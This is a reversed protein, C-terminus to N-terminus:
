FDLPASINVGLFAEYNNGILDVGLNPSINLMQYPFEYMAGFRLVFRRQSGTRENLEIYSLNETNSLEGYDTWFFSPSIYLSLKNIPHIYFAPGIQLEIQETFKFESTLGIGTEIKSNSLRFEYNLGFSPAIIESQKVFKTGLFLGPNHQLIDQSFGVQVFLALFIILLKSKM